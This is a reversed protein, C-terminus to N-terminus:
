YISDNCYSMSWINPNQGSPSKKISQNLIVPFVARSFNLRSDSNSDSLLDQGVERSLVRKFMATIYFKVRRTLPQRQQFLSDMLIRRAPQLRHECFMWYWVSQAAAELSMQQQLKSQIECIKAPHRTIRKLVSSSRPRLKLRCANKESSPNGISAHLFAKRREKNLWGPSFAHLCMM